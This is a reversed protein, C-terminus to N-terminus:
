SREPLNDFSLAAIRSSVANSDAGETPATTLTPATNEVPTVQLPGVTLASKDSWREERKPLKPRHPTQGANVRAWYGRGPIPVGLRKCRKALGVDSIGFDKALEFIPKSWALEYLDERTLTLPKEADDIM